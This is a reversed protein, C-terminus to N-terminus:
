CRASGAVRVWWRPALLHGQRFYGL